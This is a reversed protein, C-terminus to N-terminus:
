PGFYRCRCRSRGTSVSLSRREPLTETMADMANMILNVLVQQLLVQDGNVVSRETSLNITAEVERARMDHAVLALSERIVDHLDTPKKDLQHSRLMTRQRDIIQTAHLGQTRIESLVEDITDSSARNATVMLQLAHANQIM